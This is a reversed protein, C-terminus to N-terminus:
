PLPPEETAETEGHMEDPDGSPRRRQDWIALGFVAIIGLGTMGWGLVEAPATGYELQVHKSAEGSRAPSPTPSKGHRDRGHPCRLLHLSPAA